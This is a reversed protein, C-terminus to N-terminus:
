AMGYQVTGSDRRKGKELSRMELLIAQMMGMHHGVAFPGMVPFPSFGLSDGYRRMFRYERVHGEVTKTEHCWFADLTARIVLCRFAEDNINNTHLDHGKINQCQCNPCQFACCLHDGPRAVKFRDRDGTEELSAGYFDRPVKM